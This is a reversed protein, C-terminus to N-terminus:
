SEDRLVDGTKAGGADADSSDLPASTRHDPVEHQPDAKVNRLANWLHASIPRMVANHFFRYDEELFRDEVDAEVTCIEIGDETAFMAKIKM